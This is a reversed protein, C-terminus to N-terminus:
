WDDGSMEGDSGDWACDAGEAARKMEALGTLEELYSPENFARLLFADGQRRYADVM